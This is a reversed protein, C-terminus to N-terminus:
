NKVDGNQEVKKGGGLPHNKKGGPEWHPRRSRLPRCGGCRPAWWRAVASRAASPAATPPASPASTPRRRRSARFLRNPQSIWSVCFTKKFPPFSETRTQWSLTYSLMYSLMYAYLYMYIYVYLSHSLLSLSTKIPYLATYYHEQKGSYIPRVPQFQMGIKDVWNNEGRSM